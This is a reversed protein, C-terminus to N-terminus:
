MAREAIGDGALLSAIHPELSQLSAVKKNEWQIVPSMPIPVMVEKRLNKVRM